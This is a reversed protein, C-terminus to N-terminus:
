EDNDGREDLLAHNLYLVVKAAKRPNAEMMQFGKAFDEFLLHHTLVPGPDLRGSNLMGAMEFWTEFMKRGNIGYLRIGKFIIDESFDVTISKSPLGFASFRGGKQVLKLGDSIAKPAGSMELVVDAGSGATEDMISDVIDMQDARYVRDAGMTRGIELCFPNLGTMMIKSAGSARAVAVSFLGVPGDGLIVVQRGAVPEVGTAYIANGLPDQISAIDSPLSAENKWLSREPIVVYEAFCGDRDVGLIVLDECLHPMGRLCSGCVLCSIHSDASVKDGPRFRKGGLGVEVVRGSFEHGIIQPIAKVRAQAWGDWRDLHLDTGCISVVDVQILVEDPQLSPIPVEHMELGKGKKAKVIAKM